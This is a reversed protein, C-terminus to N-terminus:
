CAGLFWISAIIFVLSLLILLDNNRHEILTDTDGSLINRKHKFPEVLGVLASPKVLRTNPKTQKNGLGNYVGVALLYVCLTLLAFIAAEPKGQLGSETSVGLILM